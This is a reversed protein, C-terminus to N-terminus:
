PIILSKLLTIMPERERTAFTRLVWGTLKRGNAAVMSIHHNFNANYSFHIGLDKVTKKQAIVMGTPSTFKMDTDPNHSFHITEFKGSNFAM